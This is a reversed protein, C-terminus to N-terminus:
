SMALCDIDDDKLREKIKLKVPRAVRFTIRNESLYSINDKTWLVAYVHRSEHRLLTKRARADDDEAWLRVTAGWDIPTNVYPKGDEGMKVKRDKRRVSLSGMRHPLRILKGALMDEVMEENIARVLRRWAMYGMGEPLYPLSAEYLKRRPYAKVRKARPGRVNKIEDITPM